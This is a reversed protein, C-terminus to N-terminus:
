EELAEALAYVGLEVLTSISIIKTVDEPGMEGYFDVVPKSFDCKPCKKIIRGGVKDVKKLKRHCFPCRKAEFLEKFGRSLNKVGKKTIEAKLIDISRRYEKPIKITTYNSMNINM